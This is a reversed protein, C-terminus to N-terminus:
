FISILHSESSSNCPHSSFLNGRSPFVGGSSSLSRRYRSHCFSSCSVHNTTVPFPSQQQEERQLFFEYNLLKDSLEDFILPTDHTRISACFECYIPSLGNLAMIVLDLDDVFHGILALEDPISCISHLYDCVNSHGKIISSLLKKLSM